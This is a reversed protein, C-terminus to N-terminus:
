DAVFIAFPELWDANRAVVRFAALLPVALFLGAVGWVLGWFMLAVLIATPNLRLGRGYAAPSVLNNQLTTIVLYAAPALAAHVLGQTGALGTLLLLGIMVAGGLYPVFEAIFTLVGWIMPAAYGLPWVVLAVLIGQGANIIVNVLLYRLVVHRMEHLMAFVRQQKAPEPAVRCVKDSWADGAALVFFALLLVELLGFLVAITVGFASAITRGIGSPASAGGPSPTVTASTDAGPAPKRPPQIANTGRNASSDTRPGVVDHGGSQRMPEDLRVDGPVHVGLTELRGRAGLITKPIDRTLTRIPPELLTAMLVILGLACLVVIAAGLPAPVSVRRLAAVPPSLVAALLVGLTLPVFFKSGLSLIVVAAIFAILRVSTLARV